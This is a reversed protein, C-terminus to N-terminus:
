RRQSQIIKWVLIAVIVTILTAAFTPLHINKIM